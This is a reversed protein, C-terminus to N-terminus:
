KKAAKAEAAKQLGAAASGLIGQILVLAKYSLNRREMTDDSVVKGDGDTITSRITLTIPEKM